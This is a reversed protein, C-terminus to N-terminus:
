QHVERVPVSGAGPHGPPSLCVGVPRAIPPLSIGAPRVPPSLTPTTVALSTQTNRARGLAIPSAIKGWHPCESCFTEGDLKNRIYTCTRPGPQRDKGAATLAQQLKRATEEPTYGPHPRSLQHAAAEGGACRGVISLMAYWAPETLHAADDRCHRLWACGSLIRELDAPPWSRPQAAQSRLAIPKAESEPLWAFDAPVYRASEDLHLLTVPVIPVGPKRNLTGPVRLVRALDATNDIHWGSESAVGQFWLQLRLVLGALWHREAASDIAWPEPFLWWVQMGHGSHVIVTPRWPFRAILALAAALTPPLNTARHAPDLIDIEVYLGPLACVAAADGRSGAPQPLAHLGCAIYVNVSRALMAVQRCAGEWDSVPVWHSQAGPLTFLNLFGHAAPGAFARLFRHTDAPSPTRSKKL